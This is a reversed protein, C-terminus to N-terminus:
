GKNSMHVSIFWVAPELLYLKIYWRVRAGRVELSAEPKFVHVDLGRIQHHRSCEYQTGRCAQLLRVVQQPSVDGTLLLNKDDIQNRVEHQIRGELIAEIAAHRVNKFSM